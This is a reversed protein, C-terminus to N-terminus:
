TTEKKKKKDEDDEEFLWRKERGRMMNEMKRM